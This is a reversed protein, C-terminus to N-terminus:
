FGPKREHVVLHFERTQKKEVFTHLVFNFALNKIWDKGRELNELFNGVCFLTNKQGRVLTNPTITRM